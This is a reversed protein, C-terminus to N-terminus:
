NHALDVKAGHDLLLKVVDLHGGATAAFLPTSGMIEFTGDHESINYVEKDVSSGNQLLSLVQALNGDNIADFFSVIVKM